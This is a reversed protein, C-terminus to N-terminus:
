DDRKKHFSQMGLVGKSLVPPICVNVLAVYVGIAEIFVNSKGGSM